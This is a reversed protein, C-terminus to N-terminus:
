PAQPEGPVFVAIEAITEVTMISVSFISHEWGLQM